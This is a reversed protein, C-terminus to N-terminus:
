KNKKEQLLKREKQIRMLMRQAQEAAEVDESVDKHKKVVRSENEEKKIEKMEENLRKLDEEM